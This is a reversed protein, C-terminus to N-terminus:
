PLVIGGCKPCVKSGHKGPNLKHTYVTVDCHPCVIPGEVEVKQHAVKTFHNKCWRFGLYLPIAIGVM